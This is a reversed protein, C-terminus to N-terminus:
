AASLMTSCGQTARAHTIVEEDVVCACLGAGPATLATRQIIRKSPGQLNRNTMRSTSQEHSQKYVVATGTDLSSGPPHRSFDM